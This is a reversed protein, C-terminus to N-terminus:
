LFKLRNTFDKFYKAPILLIIDVADTQSLLSIDWEHFICGVVNVM